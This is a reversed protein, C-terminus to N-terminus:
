PGAGLMNAHPKYFASLSYIMTTSPTPESSRKHTTYRNSRTICVVHQHM